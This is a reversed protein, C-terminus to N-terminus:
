ENPDGAPPPDEIRVGAACRGTCIGSSRRFETFQTQLDYVRSLTTDPIAALYFAIM